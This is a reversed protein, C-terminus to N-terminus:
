EHRLAVIPDVKTARRAPIYCALLAIITLVAAVAGFTVPDEPSVGFLFRAIVRTLAFALAGGVVVGALTLKLGLKTVLGLVSAREAGLAIRIGIERTRESVFYSMVGYIGVAALLLAMAAFIELLRMVFKSDDISVALFRQMTTIDTVPEDPDIKSVVKRINSAFDHDWSSGPSVRVFINQSTHSITSGGPFIAPQQLYSAYVMPPPTKEALGFYKVDGVVGVIERPREEDIKYPEYQLLLRKGIADENPFYHRAFTETVVVAWPMSGRDSESLYRGKKLPIRLTHFLSPSAEAYAAEPRREPAPAPRGLISFTIGRIMQSMTGVAEISPQGTISELLHQYFLTVLPSTKEMDGGPVREVYKGGEPLSTGGVMVNKTDVGPDVQKLRLVTNIMLGAGVLLLMALAVESVALLHRSWGRSGAVRTRDGQRIVANLDAKSARLAPGAGFLIPTLLCLGLTFLLVRGDVGMSDANPFGLGGPAVWQGQALKLFFQIGLFTLGIGLAGGLFALLGSEVLLQQMIRRRGAGLSARVAQEKRRTETRAQSLNAVNLCAILLVFGVAGLFPYLTRAWGFIAEHLPVLKARIGKNSKPYARELRQEIVNMEAQAQALTVGPKLRGVPMLWGRDKRESYRASEPNIPVWGDVREGQFPAFHPPMIGVVTSMVGGIEFTKGIVKPDSGFRRKWFADSILVTQNLDHIEGKTFVRGLAPNVRLVSFFNPTVAQARIPEPQGGRAMRLGEPGSALAIDEFVHNQKNWDVLEAIPPGEESGPEAQETEWIVMLRDPDDYPLPRYLEANIVSFMTSNAAIGLALSAIVVVAFGPSRGLSRVAYRVDQYLSEFTRM